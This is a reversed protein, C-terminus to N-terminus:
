FPYKLKFKGTFDLITWYIDIPWRLCTNLICFHGEEISKQRKTSLPKDPRMYQHITAIKQRNQPTANRSRELHSTRSDVHLLSGMVRNKPTQFITSFVVSIVINNTISGLRIATYCCANNGFLSGKRCQAFFNAVMKPSPSFLSTLFWWSCNIRIKHFIEYYLIEMFTSFYLNLFTDQEALVNQLCFISPTCGHFGPFLDDM